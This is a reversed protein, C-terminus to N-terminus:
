NTKGRELVLGQFDLGQNDTEKLLLLQSLKCRFDASETGIWQVQFIFFTIGVITVLRSPSVSSLYRHRCAKTLCSSLCWSGSMEDLM